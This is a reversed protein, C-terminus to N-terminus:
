AELVVSLLKGPVYIVKRIAKDALHRAITEDAKAAELVAPEGAGAPVRVSGRKKGMVQVVVEMTDEVLATRDFTPWREHALSTEHGLRSWLEEAIHPALPAVMLVLPEAIARPIASLPVLENNLEILRAIATNFRIHDM